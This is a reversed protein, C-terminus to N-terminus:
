SVKREMAGGGDDQDDDEEFPDLPMFGGEVIGGTAGDNAAAPPAEPAQPEPMEATFEADAKAKLLEAIDPPLGSGPSTFESKKLMEQMAPSMGHAAAFQALSQFPDGAAAQEGKLVVTKKTESFWIAGDATEELLEPGGPLRAVLRRALDKYRKSQLLAEVSGPLSLGKAAVLKLFRAAEQEHFKEDSRKRLPQMLFYTGWALAGAIIFSGIDPRLFPDSFLVLGLMGIIGPVLGQTNRRQRDRKASAKLFGWATSQIQTKTM